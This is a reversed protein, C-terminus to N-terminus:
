LSAEEDRYPKRAVLHLRMEKQIENTVIIMGEKELGAQVEERHLIDVDGHGLLHADPMEVHKILWCLLPQDTTMERLILRGGPRLCRAVSHYFNQLNPYHHASNSCLIVDFSDDAFPLTECDGVFFEANPIEKSRAAEIMAPTLDIGTYRKNPYKQSLLYIMPAPGCGCDLVDEFPEKEMEQLIPVYDKKCLEYVGAANSEYIAAAKTFEQISLKKYEEATKM